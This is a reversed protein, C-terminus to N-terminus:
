IYVRISKSRDETNYGNCRFAGLAAKEYIAEGQLFKEGM